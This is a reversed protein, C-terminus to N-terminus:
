KLLDELDALSLGKSKIVKLLNSDKQRQSKREAKEEATLVRATSDGNAVKSKERATNNADVKLMRNALALIEAKPIDGVDELVKFVFNYPMEEGTSKRTYSGDGNVDRLKIM